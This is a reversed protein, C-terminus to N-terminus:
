RSRKLKITYNSSKNDNTMVIYKDPIIKGNIVIYCNPMMPKGVELFWRDDNIKCNIFATGSFDGIFIEQSLVKSDDTKREPKACSVWYNVFPIPQNNELVSITLYGDHKVENDLENDSKTSTNQQQVQNDAKKEPLNRQNEQQTKINHKILSENSPITTDKLPEEIKPTQQIEQQKNKESVIQISYPSNKILLIIIIILITIIVVSLYHERTRPIFYLIAGAAIGILLSLIISLLLESM